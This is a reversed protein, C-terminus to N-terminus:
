EFDGTESLSIVELGILNMQRANEVFIHQKEFTEEGYKKGVVDRMAERLVESVGGIYLFKYESKVLDRIEGELKKLLTAAYGELMESIPEKLETVQQTIPDKKAMETRGINRVIFDELERVDSFHELLKHERFKELYKLYAVDTLTTLSDKSRPSDLGPPLVVIDVTGGGIDVIVTVVKQFLDAVPNDELSLDKKLGWRAVEGEIRCKSQQVEIHISRELGPTKVQVIHNGQFRAAMENLMDSFKSAKRLLWVPLMTQFYDVTVHYEESQGERNEETRAIQFEAISALFMVYPIISEVKDHLTRIHENKFMEREALKGVIFYREEGNVETSIMMNSIFKSKDTIPNVFYDEAKDKNIEVVNTPIEKLYGNILTMFYSNGFDTNM